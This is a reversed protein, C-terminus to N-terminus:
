KDDARGRRNIEELTNLIKKMIEIMEQQPELDTGTPSGIVTSPSNLQDDNSSSRFFKLDQGLLSDMIKSSRLPDLPARQMAPDLDVWERKGTLRNYRYKRGSRSDVAERWPSKKNQNITQESGGFLSRGRKKSKRRSSRRKTYTM